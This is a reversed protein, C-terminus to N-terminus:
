DNTQGNREGQHMYTFCFKSGKGLESEVWITGGQQEVIKKCVALGIGTGPYQDRTHLRKFIEFIREQYEPAIGIGNDAVCFTVLEGKKKGTIKIVPNEKCFKISNCILNQFLQRLQGQDAWVMPLKDYQIIVKKESIAEKLSASIDDLLLNPDVQQTPKTQTRVRSYALLDTILQQMRKSGDVIYNIFDTADDDLKDKYRKELLKTYNSIVRLPEQLDHSAIYAFQELDKNSRQLEDLTKQLQENVKIKESINKDLEDEIIKKDTVDRIIKGFGVLNQLSDYMPRVIINAWFPQGNKRVCLENKESLGKEAAEKLEQEQDEILKDKPFLLTFHKGLVEKETYGTIREAGLNWSTVEGAPNLILFGYDKSSNMFIRIREEILIKENIIKNLLYFCLIILGIAGINCLLALSLTRSEVIFANGSRIDLLKQEENIIQVSTQNLQDSMWKFNDAAIYTLGAKMGNKQRVQISADLLKLYEAFLRSFDNIRNQQIPNDRTLNTFIKINLVIQGILAKYDILYNAKGFIIYNSHIKELTNVSTIIREATEITKHTHFVQDNEDILRYLQFYIIFSIIIIFVVSFVSFIRIFVQSSPVKM